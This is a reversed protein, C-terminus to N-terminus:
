KEETKSLKRPVPRASYSHEIFASKALGGGVSPMSRGAVHQRALLTPVLLFYSASLTFLLSDPELGVM